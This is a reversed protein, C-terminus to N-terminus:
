STTLAGSVTVFSAVVSAALALLLILALIQAGRAEERREALPMLMGLGLGAVFGGAHAINNVGKIALSFVFGAVAWSMAQRSVGAGWTGGRRKGYVLLAGYLGFIAGSAGITPAGSIWNSVLYGAIGTLCFIVFFRAPGFVESALPGIGRVWSLNFFIHLLSGHLFTASLVTWWLGAQLAAGGTMGLKYLALSSPSGLGLIDGVQLAAMPDLALSTVYLAVCLSYVIWVPEFHDRFFDRLSPAFGFLTPQLAGCYPCAKESASVLRKCSSCLVAGRKAM